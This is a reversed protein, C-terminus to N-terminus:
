RNRCHNDGRNKYKTREAKHITLLAENWDKRDAPPLVRTATIGPLEAIKAATKDGAEDNDTCVICRNVEGHRDLFNPLAVIATGGLSLRWGDFDPCLMQHSLADIPSEFVAVTDSRPKSPPLSFGFQKNSGDEDRKFSGLTGRLSAFRAKGTDDRGVFVCNHYVASEYLFGREICDLILPKAIGRSQLYAVVRNNTGNRPPLAFPKHEPPQKAKEPVDYSRTDGSLHRVADVFGYGRVTILYNLATATAGGVGRSQWHWKGNSMTVSHDKLRYENGIRKVNDPEHALIYDLIEIEKAKKIQEATVGPITIVGKKNDCFM